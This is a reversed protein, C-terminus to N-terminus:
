NWVGAAGGGIESYVALTRRGIETWSRGSEMYGAGAEGMQRLAELGLDRAQEIAAAVAETTDGEISVGCPCQSLLAGLGGERTGIIPRRNALALAAVGSESTFARYPLLLAHHEAVLPGTEADDIYRDIVRIGAPKQEILGRCHDWYSQERANAVAGAITLRVLLRGRANISQVAGIALHVGKNERIGGFLLLRLEGPPAPDGAHPIALPGHPIVVVKAPNQGFRDVLVSRGTENHVIVRNSLCYAWRVMNWELSRLRRPLLWKHPLPDHATFVIACRKMRALCFFALGAPFYLPFQM